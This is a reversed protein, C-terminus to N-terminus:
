QCLKFKLERKAPDINEISVRVAQGIVFAEEGKSHTFTKSDFSWEKAKRRDIQGDIGFDDLRVTISSQNAYHIVADFQAGAPLTQLWQLKLWYEAQNAAVRARGQREQISGLLEDSVTLKDQQQLSAAIMRHVLLDNYKRLPSTMTTYSSFGLAMHPTAETVLVSRDLQRNLIDKLKLSGEYAAAQKLLDVYAELTKFKPKQELQLTDKLLASADGIRESRIGKHQVFIGTERTAMWNATQRNCVLMCEEVLKQADNRDLRLIETVKGHENMALRYDPREDMILATAQRYSALARYCDALAQLSAQLEAPIDGQQSDAMFEAVQSYSLKAKSIVSAQRLQLLESAGDAMVQIDAVLALRRQGPQLSCLQESLEAPLMPLMMNPFYASTARQQALQDLESGPTVVAAPDAIAVQLLWGNDNATATLADDLDRTSASDITVLPLESLDLRQELQESIGKEVEARAAQLQAETFETPLEWKACMFRNEVGADGPQGIVQTISAQAKGHPYPHQSLTAAVLDGDQAGARQKPAVFIWRNLAPHDAEIFHGKGKVLYRGCFRTIESCVLKEILAQSKKEDVQEVRFEIRDGPLVKDMEEPALYFQQNDDTVAFGFRGATSRVKGEYRPISNHIEQKLSQLQSLANKDLM